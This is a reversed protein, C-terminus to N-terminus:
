FFNKVTPLESEYIHRILSAAKDASACFMAADKQEAYDKLEAVVETMEDLDNHRVFISLYTEHHEWKEQTQEALKAAHSFDGQEVSQCSANLLGSIEADVQKLYLLSGVSLAIIGALIVLITISRKM